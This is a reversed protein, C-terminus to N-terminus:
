LTYMENVNVNTFYIHISIISAPRIFYFIFTKVSAAKIHFILSRLRSQNYPTTIHGIRPSWNNAWSILFTTWKYLYARYHRSKKKELFVRPRVFCAFLAFAFLFVCLSSQRRRPQFKQIRQQIEGTLHYISLIHVILCENRRFEWYTDFRIRLVKLFFSVQSGKQSMKQRSIGSDSYRSFNPMVTEYFIVCFSINKTHSKLTKWQPVISLVYIDDHM